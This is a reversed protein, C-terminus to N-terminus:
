NWTRGASTATDVMFNDFRRQEPAPTFELWIQDANRVQAGSPHRYWGASGRMFARFSLDAVVRRPLSTRGVLLATPALQGERYFELRSLKALYRQEAEV